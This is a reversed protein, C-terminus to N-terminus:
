GLDRAGAMMSMGVATVLMLVDHETQFPRDERYYHRSFLWAVGTGLVFILGWMATTRDCRFTGDLVTGPVSEALLIRAHLAAAALLAAFVLSARAAKPLPLLSSLLVVLAGLALAVLPALATWANADFLAKIVDLTM